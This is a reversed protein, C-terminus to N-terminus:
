RDTVRQIYKKSCDHNAKPLNSRRPSLLLSKRGTTNRALILYLLFCFVAFLSGTETSMVHCSMSSTTKITLLVLGSIWFLVSDISVVSSSQVSSLSVRRGSKQTQEEARWDERGGESIQKSTSLIISYTWYVLLVSPSSNSNNKIQPFNFCVATAVRQSQGWGDM